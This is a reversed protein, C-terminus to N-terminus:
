GLLEVMIPLKERNEKLFECPCDGESLKRTCSLCEAFFEYAQELEAKSRENQRIKIELKEIQAAVMGRIQEAVEGGTSDSGSIALHEKIQGLSLGLSKFLQILRLKRVQEKAYIRVGRETRVAPILLGEQEYFRLTRTSVGVKRALEGIHMLETDTM